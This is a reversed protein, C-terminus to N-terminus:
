SNKNFDRLQQVINPHPFFVIEYVKESAARIIKTDNLLNNLENFYVSNKFLPSYDIKGTQPNIKGM